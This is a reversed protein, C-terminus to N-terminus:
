NGIRVLGGNSFTIGLANAGARLEVAQVFVNDGISSPTNPLAFSFLYPEVTAVYPLLGVNAFDVYARCGTAIPDLDANAPGGILLFGFTPLAGFGSVDIGFTTGISPKTGPVGAIQLAPGGAIGSNWPTVSIDRNGPDSSAGTSYGVLLTQDGVSVSGYRVEWAGSAHLVLQCTGTGGSNIMAANSWTVYVETNGPAVDFFLGAGPSSPDLGTWMPALCPDGMTLFQPIDGECCPSWHNPDTRLWVFGDATVDLSTATGGPHPWAFPLPLNYAIGFAGLGLSNTFAPNIPNTTETGIWGGVGNPAFHLSRLALDHGSGPPFFEYFTSPKPCGSGILDLGGTRCATVELCQYGGVGNPTFEWAMGALDYTPGVSAIFPEYDFLASNTGSDLVQYGATSFDVDQPTGFDAVGVLVPGAQMENDPGHYIYFRGDDLMQLQVLNITPGGLGDPAEWTVVARAPSSVTAPFSNFFVGPGMSADLLSWMAAIRSSGAFGSVAPSVGPNANNGLWVFGMSSISITSTGGSPSPFFFGLPQGIQVQAFGLGLNPGRNSEFCPVQAQALAALSAIAVAIPFRQQM